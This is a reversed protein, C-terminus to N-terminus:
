RDKSTPKRRKEMRLTPGKPCWLGAFIPKSFIEKEDYSFFAAEYGEPLPMIQVIKKM